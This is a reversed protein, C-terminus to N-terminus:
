DSTAQRLLQELHATLAADGSAAAAALQRRLAELDPKEEAPEAPQRTSQAPKTTAM